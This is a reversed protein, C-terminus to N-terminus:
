DAFKAKEAHSKAAEDYGQAEATSAQDEHYDRVATLAAAMAERGGRKEHIAYAKMAADLIESRPYM